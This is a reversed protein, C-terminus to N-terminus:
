ENAGKIIKTSKNKTKPVQHYKKTAGQGEGLEIARTKQEEIDKKIKDQKVFQYQGKLVKHLHPLALPKKWTEIGNQLYTKTKKKKGIENIEVKL